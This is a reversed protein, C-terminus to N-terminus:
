ASKTTINEEGEDQHADETEGLELNQLAVLANEATSKALSEGIRTYHIGAARMDAPKYVNRLDVM